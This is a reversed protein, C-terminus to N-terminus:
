CMTRPKVSEAQFVCKMRVKVLKKKNPSATYHLHELHTMDEKRDEGEDEDAESDFSSLSLWEDDAEATPLLRRPRCNAAM